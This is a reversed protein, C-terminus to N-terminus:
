RRLRRIKQRMRIEARQFLKYSLTHQLESIRMVQEEILRQQEDVQKEREALKKIIRPGETTYQTVIELAESAPAVKKHINVELKAQPIQLYNLFHLNSLLYAEVNSFLSEYLSYIEKPLFLSDNFVIIQGGSLSKLLETRSELFAHHLLRLKIFDKPVPFDFVWEYDILTLKRKHEILNDLNLDICGPTICDLEINYYPGFVDKFGNNMTPNMKVTPFSDIVRFAKDFVAKIAKNNEDKLAADLQTELSTGDIFAFVVESPSIKVINAVECDIGAEMLASRKAGFSQLHAESLPNAARKCVTLNSGAQKIVTVLQFQPKRANSGRVFVAQESM